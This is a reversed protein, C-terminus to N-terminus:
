ERKKHLEKVKCIGGDKYACLYGVKGDCYGLRTVAISMNKNHEIRYITGASKSRNVKHDPADNSNSM